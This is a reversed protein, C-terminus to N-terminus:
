SIIYSFIQLGLKTVNHRLIGDEVTVFDESIVKVTMSDLEEKDFPVPDKQEMALYKEKIEDSIIGNNALVVNIKKEGLYSNLTKVHDSVTYDDTEGPQTMINSIYMVEASSIDIAKKMDESILHPIISTYLSGMSLVILDASKIEDLVENLVKPDKKYFVEKINKKAGTINHEGEIISNDDMKAMLIVNDETLPLVKGKLNLVKSLSKIGVSMNGAVDILGTLLLNGLTHGNLDSNTEFRYNMLDQFLPETESLAVIVRRIDGVAPTNFEERLRGTSKGDDSVSVVATIDVPFNKLGRLLTSMGTGGGLVVIKKNM